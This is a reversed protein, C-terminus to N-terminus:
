DPQVYRINVGFISMIERLEREHVMLMEAMRSATIIDKAYADLCLQLYDSTLGRELLTKRREEGKPSLGRLEPDIKLNRPVKVSKILRETNSDILREDKLAIALVETNVNLKVSWYLVKEDDWSHSSPILNTFNRPLLFHAAFTNARIEVLDNKSWKTFSVVAQHEDDLISHAVEHAATFRQRFMDESYNVLICKGAIPHNIYLGSINSNDLKRRYVKVGLKRFDRYINLPIENDSYNLYSRLRSAAARGHYKYNSGEKEFYFATHQLGLNQTLFAENEALFLVEQIAWRDSKSLKGGYKRFLYDTQEFSTVQKNTIFFRFDCKYYDALILIEDGSPELFGQEFASLRDVEIGTYLALEENSIQFQERYRRLKEPLSALEIAM